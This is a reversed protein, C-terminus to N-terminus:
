KVQEKPGPVDDSHRIKSDALFDIVGSQTSCSSALQRHPSYRDVVNMIDKANAKLIDEAVSEGYVYSLLHHFIDLKMEELEPQIM